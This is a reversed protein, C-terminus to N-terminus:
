ELLIADIITKKGIPNGGGEEVGVANLLLIVSCVLDPLSIMKRQM